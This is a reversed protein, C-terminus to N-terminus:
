SATFLLWDLVCVKVWFRERTFDVDGQTM